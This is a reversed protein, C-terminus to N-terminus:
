ELKDTSIKLDELHELEMARCSISINLEDEEPLVPSGQCGAIGSNVTNEEYNFANGDESEEDSESNSVEDSESEDYRKSGHPRAVRNPNFFDKDMDVETMDINRLKEDDERCKAIWTREAESMEDANLCHSYIELLERNLEYFGRGWKFKRLIAEGAEPFGTIYFLAAFAEVCSLKSPKGYNIPNAAVLHPLLRPYKTKMKNFPTENLKAWSCDIVAAGHEKVIERDSPAVYQKGLPSLVIGNFRTGLRLVKLYGFRSLKQGTCKKPDCHALDWMALPFGFNYRDQQVEHPDHMDMPLTGEIGDSNDDLQKTRRSRASSKWREKSARGEKGKGKGM